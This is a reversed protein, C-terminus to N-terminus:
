RCELATIRIRSKDAELGIAFAAAKSLDAIRGLREFGGRDTVTAEISLSDRSLNTILVRTNLPLGMFALTPINENFVQGNAMRRDARCGLCGANTYYSAKGEWSLNTQQCGSLARSNDDKQPITLVAEDPILGAYMAAQGVLVNEIRGTDKWRQFAMNQFRWVQYPGYDKGFSTARGPDIKTRLNMAYSAIEPGINFTQLRTHFTDSDSDEFFQKPPKPPITVGLALNDLDPDLDLSHMYDLTPLPSIVGTQKEQQLLSCQYAIYHNHNDEWSSSLRYGLVTELSNKSVFDVFQQTTDPATQNFIGSRKTNAIPTSLAAFILNNLLERREM